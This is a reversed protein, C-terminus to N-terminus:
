FESKLEPIRTSVGWVHGDVVESVVFVVTAGRKIIEGAKAKRMVDADSM